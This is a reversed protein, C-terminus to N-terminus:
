MNRFGICVMFCACMSHLIHMCPDNSLFEKIQEVSADEFVILGGNVPNILAGANILGAAQAAQVILM